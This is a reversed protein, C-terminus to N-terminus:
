SPLESRWDSSAIRAALLTVLMSCLGSRADLLEAGTTIHREQGDEVVTLNSVKVDSDLIIRRTDKEIWTSVGGDQGRGAVVKSWAERKYAAPREYSFSVREEEPLAMNEDFDPTYTARREVTIRM